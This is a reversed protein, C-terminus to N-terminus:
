FFHRRFILQFCGIEVTFIPQRSYPPMRMNNTILRGAVGGLSHSCSIRDVDVSICLCMWLCRYCMELSFLYNTGLTVGMKESPIAGHQSYLKRQHHWLGGGGRTVLYSTDSACGELEGTTQYCSAIM